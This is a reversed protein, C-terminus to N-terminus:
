WGEAYRELSVFRGAPARLEGNSRLAFRERRGRGDFLEVDGNPLPRLRARYAHDWGPGLPGNDLTQNRYTRSFVFDLGRGRIQIDTVEQSMEGSHLLTGPAVDGTGYSPNLTPEQRLAPSLDWPVSAVEVEAAALLHAPYLSSMAERTAGGLRVGLLHGSLIERYPDSVVEGAYVGEEVLDCRTCLLDDEHTIEPDSAEKEQDSMQYHLSARLDALVVVPDSVFLNYGEEWPHEAQRELVLSGTAPVAGTTRFSVPPLNAILAPDGAGRIELGGPGLAVLDIEVGATEPDSVLFAPLSAELDLRLPGSDAGAAT